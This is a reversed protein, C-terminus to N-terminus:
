RYWWMALWLTGESVPQLRLCADPTPPGDDPAADFLVAEGPALAMPRAVGTAELAGGVLAPALLVCLARRGEPIAVGDPWGNHSTPGGAVLPRAPTGPDHRQVVLVGPQGVRARAARAMLAQLWRLAFDDVTQEFRVDPRDVGDSAVQLQATAILMRCEDTSLLRPLRMVRPRGCQAQWPPPRLAEAFGLRGPDDGGGVPAPGPLTWPRLWPLRPVGCNALARWWRKSDAPRVPTGEGRYLREALLPAAIADGAVAARELLEVCAAQGVPDDRRGLQLAVARLAPPMGARAARLIRQDIRADDQGAADGLAISALYYGADAHGAAEARELWAIAQAPDTPGGLGHLLMRAYEVQARADGGQAEDHFHVRAEDWRRELLLTRAHDTRDLM